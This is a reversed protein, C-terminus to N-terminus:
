NKVSKASQPDASHVLAKNSSNEDLSTKYLSISSVNNGCIQLNAIIAM